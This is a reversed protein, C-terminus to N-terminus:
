DTPLVPLLLLTARSAEFVERDEKIIRSADIYNCCGTDHRLPQERLASLDEIIWAASTAGAGLLQGATQQGGGRHATAVSPEGEACASGEIDSSATLTLGQRRRAPSPTDRVFGAIRLIRVL